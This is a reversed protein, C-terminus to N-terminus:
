VIEAGASPEVEVSCLGRPRFSIPHIAVNRGLERVCNELVKLLHVTLSHANESMAHTPM